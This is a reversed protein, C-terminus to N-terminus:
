GSSPVSIGEPPTFLMRAYRHANDLGAHPHLCPFDYALRAQLKFELDPNLSTYPHKISSYILMEDNEPNIREQPLPTHRTSPVFVPANVDLSTRKSSTDSSAHKNLSFEPAHVNLRSATLKRPSESLSLANFSDNALISEINDGKYSQKFPSVGFTIKHTQGEGEKVPTNYRLRHTPEPSPNVSNSHLLYNSAQFANFAQRSGDVIVPLVPPQLILPPAPGDDDYVPTTRFARRQSELKYIVRMGKCWKCDLKDCLDEPSLVLHFSTTYQRQM